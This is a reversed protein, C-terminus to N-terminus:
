RPFNRQFRWSMGAAEAYLLVEDRENATLRRKEDGMRVAWRRVSGVARVGEPRIGLLLVQYEVQPWLIALAWSLQPVVHVCGEVVSRVAVLAGAILLWRGFCADRVAPVFAVVWGSMLYLFEHDFVERMCVTSLAWIIFGFLFFACILMAELDFSGLHTDFRYEPPMAVLAHLWSAHVRHPVEDFERPSRVEVVVEVGHV